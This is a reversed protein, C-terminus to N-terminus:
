QNVDIKNKLTEDKWCKLFLFILILMLCQCDQYYGRFYMVCAILFCIVGAITLIASLLIQIFGDALKIFKKM